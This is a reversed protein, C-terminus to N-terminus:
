KQCKPCYVILKNIAWIGKLESECNLCLNCFKYIECNYSINHIGDWEIVKDSFIYLIVRGSYTQINEIMKNSINYNNRLLYYLLIENYLVCIMAHKQSNFLRETYIHKNDINSIEEWTIKKM